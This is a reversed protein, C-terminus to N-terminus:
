LRGAPNWARCIEAALSARQGGGPPVALVGLVAQELHPSDGAAPAKDIADLHRLHRQAVQDQLRALGNRHPDPDLLVGRIDAANIQEASFEAIIRLVDDQSLM